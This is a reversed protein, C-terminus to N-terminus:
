EPGMCENNGGCVGCDDVEKGSFPVGDCGLCSTGNGGPVGCVDVDCPMVELGTKKRFEERIVPCSPGPYVDCDIAECYANCLGFARGTFVDCVTEEAPTQGDHTQALVSKTWVLGFVLVIIAAAVVGQRDLTFRSKKM